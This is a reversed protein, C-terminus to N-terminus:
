SVSQGYFLPAILVVAGDMDAVVPLVTTFLIVNLRHHVERDQTM